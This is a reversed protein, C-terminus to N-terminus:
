LIPIQQKEAICVVNLLFLVAPQSLILIIQGLPAVHRGASQQKLSSASYFGLEAHQDLVFRGEDCRM